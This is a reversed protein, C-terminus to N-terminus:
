HKLIRRINDFLTAVCTKVEGNINIQQILILRFLDSKSIIQRQLRGPRRYIVDLFLLVNEVFGVFLKFRLENFSSATYTVHLSKNTIFM